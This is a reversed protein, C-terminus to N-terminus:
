LILSAHEQILDIFVCDYILTILGLLPLKLGVSGLRWRPKRFKENKKKMQFYLAEFPLCINKEIKKKCPESLIDVSTV